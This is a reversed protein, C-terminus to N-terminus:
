GIITRFLISLDNFFSAQLLYDKNIKVKDPWIIARYYSEYDVQEGLICEENRYKITAPGTIGPRVSLVILDEAHLMEIYEKVEPRPGVLSMDGKLVNWLQPLEDIKYKRFVRGCRTIRCNHETTVSSTCSIDDLMTKIKYIRFLKGNRGVREQVFLGNGGTEVSAILFAIVIVPLFALVCIASVSIDFMRKAPACPRGSINQLYSGLVYNQKRM